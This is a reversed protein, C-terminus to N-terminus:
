TSERILLDPKLVITHVYNNDADDMINLLLQVGLEAMKQVPPSITTLAPILYKSERINDNGVLAIDEPVKLGAEYAYRIAGIAIDDYGCLLATPRDKRSFLEKMAAYGGAEFREKSFCCYSENFEANHSQMAEKFKAYRYTLNHIDTIFGIKTHGQEMLHQIALGMGYSEDIMVYSCNDYPNLVELCVTPIQYNKWTQEIITQANPNSPILYLIGDTHKECFLDFGAQEMNADFSTVYLIPLYGLELLQEQLNAVLAAFFNSLIEPTLIGILRTRKMAKNRSSPIYHLEEAIKFIEQRTTESIGSSGNLAKSVTSINVNAAHAIDKLTAM